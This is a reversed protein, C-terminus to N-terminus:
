PKIEIPTGDKVLTWIEEMDRNTVAICGDTWDNQRLYDHTWRKRNPMGHIMIMGGPDHGLAEARLKDRLNPYSIHLSLHYRSRPNRYDIIYRGEPTRKDGERQKHGRPNNGLSIRYRRIPQEGSLLYLTRASKEVIVSDIAMAAALGESDISGPADVAGSSAVAARALLLAAMWLLHKM